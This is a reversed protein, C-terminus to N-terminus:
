LIESDKGEKLQTNNYCCQQSFFSLINIMVTVTVIIILFRSSSYFNYKQKKNTKAPQIDSGCVFQPLFPCLFTTIIRFERRGVLTCFIHIWPLFMQRDNQTLMSHQQEPSQMEHSALLVIMYRIYKICELYYLFLHGFYLYRNIVIYYLLVTGKSHKDYFILFM